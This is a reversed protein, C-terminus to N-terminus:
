QAAEGQSRRQRTELRAAIAQWRAAEAQDPKVGSAPFRDLVRPDFTQAVGRAGRPDGATVLSQFLTRAALIDGAALLREAKVTLADDPTLVRTRTRRAPSRPAKPGPAEADPGSPAPAAEPVPPAAPPPDALGQTPSTRAGPAGDSGPATAGGSEPEPTAAASPIATLIPLPDNVLKPIGLSSGKLRAEIESSPPPAEGAPQAESRPASSPAAAPEDDDPKAAPESGGGVRPASASRPRGASDELRKLIDPQAYLLASVALIPALAAACAILKSYSRRPHDSTRAEQSPDPRDAPIDPRPPEAEGDRHGAAPRSSGEAPEGDARPLGHNRSPTEPAPVPTEVDYSLTFSPEPSRAGPPPPVQAAAREPGGALGSPRDPRDIPAGADAAAPLRDLAQFGDSDEPVRPDPRTGAGPPISSDWRAPAPPAVDHPAADALTDTLDLDSSRLGFVPSPGRLDDKM